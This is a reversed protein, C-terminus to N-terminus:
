NQKFILNLMFFNVVTRSKVVSENLTKPCFVNGSKLM